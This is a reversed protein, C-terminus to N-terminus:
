SHLEKLVILVVDNDYDKTLQEVLYGNDGFVVFDGKLPLHRQIMEYASGITIIEGDVNVARILNFV